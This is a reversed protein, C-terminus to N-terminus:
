LASQDTHQKWPLHSEGASFSGGGGLLIQMTALAYIDDDHIGVGEFALYLHDFESDTSHFFRYGGTYVARDPRALEALVASSQPTVPAAPYLNSAARTLSKFLGPQSPSLLHPPVQQSSAGPRSSSPTVLPPSVAAPKMDAFHKDVLEVLEEHQLGAGAIVIREPRYLEDMYKRIAAEDVRDIREEPCLLPNGLTRRSYAVEHLHEPLIMDPKSGIERIEYRAADRQREFEEPLLAPRLVTDAILSLARPTAQAFHISQYMISERSSSCMIQGGLADIASSMEADTRTKTTQVRTLLSPPNVLAGHSRVKFAMRDLFHSVGATELTEYRSGADVYLGVGAFHGPTAETAVRIQNPLTTIQVPANPVHASFLRTPAARTGTRLINTPVKRM